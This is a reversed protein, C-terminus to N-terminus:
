VETMEWVHLIEECLCLYLSSIYFIDTLFRVVEGERKEKARLIAYYPKMVGAIAAFSFHTGKM